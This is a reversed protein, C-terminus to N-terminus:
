DREREKEEGSHASLSYEYERGVYDALTATAAPVAPLASMGMVFFHVDLIGGLMHLINALQAIPHRQTSTPALPPGGNRAVEGVSPGCKCRGVRVRCCDGRGAQAGVDCLHWLAHTKRRGGGCRSTRGRAGDDTEGTEGRCAYARVEAGRMWRWIWPCVLHALRKRLEQQEDAQPPVKPYRALLTCPPCIRCCPVHLISPPCHISSHDLLSYLHAVLARVHPTPPSSLPLTNDPSLPAIDVNATAQHLSLLQAESPTQFNIVCSLAHDM